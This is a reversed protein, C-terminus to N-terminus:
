AGEADDFRPDDSPWGIADLIRLSERLLKVGTQADSSKCGAPWPSVAELERLDNAVHELDRITSRLMARRVEELQDATLDVTTLILASEVPATTSSM